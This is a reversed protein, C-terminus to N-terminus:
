ALLEGPLAALDRGVLDRVDCSTLQAGLQRAAVVYAAAYTTIGQEDALEAARAILSRDLRVLGGAEEIAFVM